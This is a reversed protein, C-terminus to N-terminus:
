RCCFPSTDNYRFYESLKASCTCNTNRCFFIVVQVSIKSLTGVVSYVLIPIVSFFSEFCHQGLHRIMGFQASRDTAALCFQNMWYIDFSEPVFGLSNQTFLILTFCYHIYALVELPMIMRTLLPRWSTLKFFLSSFSGLLLFIEFFFGFSIRLFLGLLWLIKKFKFYINSNNIEYQFCIKFGLLNHIKEYYHIM